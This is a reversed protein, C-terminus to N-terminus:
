LPAGTIRSVPIGDPLSKAASTVNRSGVYSGKLLIGDQNKIVNVTVKMTINSVTTIPAWFSGKM